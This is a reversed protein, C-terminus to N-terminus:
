IIPVVDCKVIVSLTHQGAGDQLKMCAAGQVEVSKGDAGLKWGDPQDLNLQVGDVSVQVYGPDNPAEELGFTCSVANSIMSQLVGNLEQESAVSTHTMLATGGAAAMADLNAAFGTGATEYGIVYTRTGEGSMMTVEEVIKKMLESDAPVALAATCAAQDFMGSFPNCAPPVAAIGGAGDCNPAGDTVLLVVKPKPIGDVAVSGRNVEERARKLASLTPTSGEPDMADLATKIAAAANAKIPVAVKTSGCSNDDPFAMLGFSIQSNYTNTSSIIANVSGTWRDGVVGAGKTDMSGSRDLVILIDPTVQENRVFYEKCNGDSDGNGASTGGNGGTSGTSGTNGGTAGGGDAGISDNDIVLDDNTNSGCGAAALMLAALSWQKLKM